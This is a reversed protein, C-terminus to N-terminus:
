ADHSGAATLLAGARDIHHTTAPLIGITLVLVKPDAQHARQIFGPCEQVNGNCVSPDADGILKAAAELQASSVEVGVGPITRTPTKDTRMQEAAATLMKANVM